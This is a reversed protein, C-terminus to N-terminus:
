PPGPRSGRRQTQHPRCPEGGPTGGTNNSDRAHSLSMELDLAPRKKFRELSFTAHLTEVFSSWREQRRIKARERAHQEDQYAWLYLQIKYVPDLDYYHTEQVYGKLSVYFAPLRLLDMDEAYADADYRRSVLTLHNALCFDRVDRIVPFDSNEKNEFVCIIRFPYRFDERERREAEEQQQKEVIPNSQM